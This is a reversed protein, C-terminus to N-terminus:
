LFPKALPILKPIVRNNVVLGKQFGVGNSPTSPFFPLCGEEQKEPVQTSGDTQLSLCEPEGSLSLEGVPNKELQVTPNGALIGHLPLVNETSVVSNIRCAQTLVPRKDSPRSTDALSALAPMECPIGSNRCLSSV